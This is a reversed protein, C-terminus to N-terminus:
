HSHQLAKQQSTIITRFSIHAAIYDAPQLKAQNEGSAMIGMRLEIHQLSSFCFLLPKRSSRHQYHYHSEIIHLIHKQLNTYLMTIDQNSAGGLIGVDGPDGSQKKRVKLPDRLLGENAVMAPLPSFGLQYRLMM